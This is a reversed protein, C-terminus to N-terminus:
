KSSSSKSIRQWNEIESKVRDAFREASSPNVNFSLKALRGRVEPESLVSNIESSLKQVVSAPTKAPAFIGVWPSSEVDLFGLEGLTPVDPHAAIRNRSAVALLRLGGPSRVLSEATPLVTTVSDVFGGLLANFGEPGSRYPVHTAVLGPVAGFVHETFM